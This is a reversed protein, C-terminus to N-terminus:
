INNQKMIKATLQHALHKYGTAKKHRKIIKFKRIKKGNLIRLQNFVFHQTRPETKLLFRTVEKWGKEGEDKNLDM